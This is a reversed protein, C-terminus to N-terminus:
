EKKNEKDNKPKANIRKTFPEFYERWKRLWDTTIGVAIALREGM